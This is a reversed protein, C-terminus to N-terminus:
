WVEDTRDRESWARLGFGAALLPAGPFIMLLLLSLWLGGAVGPALLAFVPPFCALYLVEQRGVAFGAWLHIVIPAVLLLFVLIGPLHLETNAFGYIWLAMFGVYVAVVRVFNARTPEYSYRDALSAV